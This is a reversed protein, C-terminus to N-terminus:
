EKAEMTVNHRWKKWGIVERSTQIDCFGKLNAKCFTLLCSCSSIFKSIMMIKLLLCTWKIEDGDDDDDDDDVDDDDDDDDDADDEGNEALSNLSPRRM